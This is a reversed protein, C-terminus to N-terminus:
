VFLEASAIRVQLGTAAKVDECVALLREQEARLSGAVARVAPQSARYGPFRSLDSRRWDQCLM